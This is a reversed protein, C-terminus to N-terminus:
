GFFFSSSSISKLEIKATKHFRLFSIIKPVSPAVKSEIPILKRRGRRHDGFIPCHALSQAQGSMSSRLHALFAFLVTGLEFRLHRQGCQLVFFGGSLQGTAEVDM